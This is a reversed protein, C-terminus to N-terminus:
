QVTDRRRITAAWSRLVPDKDAEVMFRAIAERMTIEVATTAYAGVDLIFDRPVRQRSYQASPHWCKIQTGHLDYLCIQYSISVFDPRVPTSALGGHDNGLEFKAEVQALEVVGDLRNDIEEQWPPWDPLETTQAFMSAFVQEFRAVSTKGVQVRFPPHIIVSTRVAGSYSLGVHADVRQFLPPEPLKEEIHLTGCASLMALAFASLIAKWSGNPSLRM